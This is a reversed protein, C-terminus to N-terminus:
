SRSRRVSITVDIGVRRTDIRAGAKTLAPTFRDTGDSARFIEVPDLGVMTALHNAVAADVHWGGRVSSRGIALRGAPTALPSALGGEVEAPVISTASRRVIGLLTARDVPDTLLEDLPVGRTAALHELAMLLPASTLRGAPDPRWVPKALVRGESDQAQLLQVLRAAGDAELPGSLGLTEAGRGLWRGPVQDHETYYHHRLGPQPDPLVPGGRGRLRGFRRADFCQDCGGEGPGPNWCHKQPGRPLHLRAAPLLSLAKSARTGM